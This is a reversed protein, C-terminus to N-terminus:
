NSKGVLTWKYTSGVKAIGWYDFSGSARDGNIDLTTAGTSGVYSNSVATFNAVLTNIDAPVGNSGEITKAIVWMADYAALGFADAHIGSRSEIKAALPEWISKQADPLGFSPTFFQTAIAFESAVADDTIAASLAVGDGGYWRVSKFVPDSNAVNFLAVCEDFSALYVAIESIPGTADLASIQSKLAGLISSFNMESAGYPTLALTNGGLASFSNGTSSQLGLNGADDRAMTIINRIGDQYMTKAIAAGEIKDAPCFRVIADGPLALSGATSGQSIVLTNSSDVYPKLAALEASSQPGIVFRIGSNEASLFAPVALAADLKTDDTQFALRFKSGKNKFYANIDEVAIEVASNSTKGLSNWNGTLSFLNRVQITTTDINNDDDCAIFGLLLLFVLPFLKKM